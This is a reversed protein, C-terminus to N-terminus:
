QATEPPLIPPHPHPGAQPVTEPQCQELARRVQAELEALSPYSTGPIIQDILRVSIVNPRRSAFVFHGPTFLRDTNRLCVVAVPARCQRAIKLAGQNLAGISGDRSRTGEPFVFLNGGRALYGEMTEMQALLLRAFRGTASAPLYGATSIVWGFIPLTFFIPKVVTKCRHLHAILLLPDLYSRHNCVIVSSRLAGIREDIVWRQRPALTRLLAFFGRYFSRNYRQFADERRSSFLAAVLYLPFFFVLFGLTFYLWCTLTVGIDLLRDTGGGQM